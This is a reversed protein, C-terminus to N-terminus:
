VVVKEKRDGEQEELQLTESNLYGRKMLVQVVDRCQKLFGLLGVDRGINPRDPKVRNQYGTLALVKCYLKTDKQLNINDLLSKFISLMDLWTLNDLREDSLHNGEGTVGNGGPLAEGKVAFPPLTALSSQAESRENSPTVRSVSPNEQKCSYAKIRIGNEVSLYYDLHEAKVVTNIPIRSDDKNTLFEKQNTTNNLPEHSTYQKCSFCHTQIFTTTRVSLKAFCKPCEKESDSWEALQSNEANAARKQSSLELEPLYVPIKYSYGGELAEQAIKIHELCDRMQEPKFNELAYQHIIGFATSVEQAVALPLKKDLYAQKVITVKDRLWCYYEPKLLRYALGNIHLDPYNNLYEKLELETLSYYSDTDQNYFDNSLSETHSQLTTSIFLLEM